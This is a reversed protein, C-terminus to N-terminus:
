YKKYFVSFGKSQLCILLIRLLFCSEGMPVVRFLLCVLKSCVTLLLNPKIKEKFLESMTQFFFFFFFLLSRRICGVHDHNGVWDEKM